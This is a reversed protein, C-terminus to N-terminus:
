TREFLLLATNISSTNWCNKRCGASKAGLNYSGSDSDPEVPVFTYFLKILLPFVHMTGFERGNIFWLTYPKIRWWCEWKYLHTSRDIVQLENGLPNILQYIRDPHSETIVNENWLAIQKFQCPQPAQFILNGWPDTKSGIM